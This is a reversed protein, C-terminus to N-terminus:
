HATAGLVCAARPERESSCFAIAKPGPAYGKQFAVAAAVTMCAPLAAGVDGIQEAPVWLEFDDRHVKQVRALATSAEVFGDREGTMGGIRFDIGHLETGADSLAARMADAMAIGMIPDGPRLPVRERARGIGLIYALPPQGAREPSTLLLAAAAEGPIVGDSNDETKLRRRSDLWALTKRNILSDVAIVLCAPARALLTRAHVLADFFGTSGIPGLRTEAHLDAGCEERLESTLVGVIDAPYGPREADGIVVLCPLTRLFDARTERDGGLCDALAGRLLPGLRHYGQRGEVVEVAPASIVVKGRADLFPVEEFRMVRARMAACAARANTGVSCVMGVAAIAFPPVATAGGSM